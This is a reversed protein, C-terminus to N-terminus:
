AKSLRIFATSGESCLSCPAIGTHLGGAGIRDEPREKATGSAVPKITSQAHM